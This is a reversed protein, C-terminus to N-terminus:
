GLQVRAAETCRRTDSEIGYHTARASGGDHAEGNEWGQRPQWRRRFAGVRAAAGSGNAGELSKGTFPAAGQRAGADVERRGKAGARHRAGAHVARSHDNREGQSGQRQNRNILATSTASWRM